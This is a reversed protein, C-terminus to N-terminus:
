LHTHFIDLFTHRSVFKFYVGWLTITWHRSSIWNNALARYSCQSAIEKGWFSESLLCTQAHGPDKAAFLGWIVAIRNLYEICDCVQRGVNEQFAAQSLFLCLILKQWTLTYRYNLLFIINVLSSVSAARRCNVNRDFVATILLASHLPKSFISWIIM